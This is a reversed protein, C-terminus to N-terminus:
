GNRLMMRYHTCHPDTTFGVAERCWERYHDPSFRSFHRVEWDRSEATLRLTDPSCAFYDEKMESEWNDRHRLHILLRNLDTWTTPENWWADHDKVKHKFVRQVQQHHQRVLNPPYALLGECVTGMDRIVIYDPDLADIMEWFQIIEPPRCYSYVEHRVSNRMVVAPRQKQKSVRVWQELQSPDSTYDRRSGPHSDHALKVMRPDNDYGYGVGASAVGLTYGDACGIDVLCIDDMRLGEKRIGPMWWLKDDTGRAMDACYTRLAADSVPKISM